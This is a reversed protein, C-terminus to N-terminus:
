IHNFILLLDENLDLWQIEYFDYKKKKIFREIFERNQEDYDMIKTYDGYESLMDNQISDMLLDYQEFMENLTLLEISNLFTEFNIIYIEEKYKDIVRNAIEHKVKGNVINLKEEMLDMLAKKLTKENLDIIM